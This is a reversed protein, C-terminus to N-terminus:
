LSDLLGTWDLGTITYLRRPHLNKDNRYWTAHLLTVMDGYAQVSCSFLASFPTAASTDTYHIVIQPAVYICLLFSTHGFLVEVQNVTFGSVKALPFPRSPLIAM